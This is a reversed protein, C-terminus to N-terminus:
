IRRLLMAASALLLAGCGAMALVILLVVAASSTAPEEEVSPEAGATYRMPHIGHTGPRVYDGCTTCWIPRAAAGSM